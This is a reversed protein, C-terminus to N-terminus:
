VRSKQVCVQECLSMRTKEYYVFNAINANKYQKLKLFSFIYNYTMENKIWLM